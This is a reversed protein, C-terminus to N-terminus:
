MRLLPSRFERIRRYAHAIPEAAAAAASGIALYTVWCASTETDDMVCTFGDADISKIDMLAEIADDVVHAYVADGQNTTATETTALNDEDSIAQVARNTTSTGAGISVRGHATTTDQTSLARNASAFMVAVPQFGLGSEAIDNGDTRTTLDGVSYQGGALAVYVLSQGTGELQNLTFGDADFSVFSDRFYIIDGYPGALTEGDYGYGCTKSTGQNDVANWAVVGLNSAGTAVGLSWVAHDSNADGTWAFGTLLAEPQFGVGTVSHNGTDGDRADLGAAANTLDAGGLALFDIRYDASFQDDIIITFGDADFSSFDARGDTTSGGLALVL